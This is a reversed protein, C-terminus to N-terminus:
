TELCSQLALNQHYLDLELYLEKLTANIIDELLYYVKTSWPACLIEFQSILTKWKWLHFWVTLTHLHCGLRVHNDPVHKPQTPCTEHHHWKPQIWPCCWVQEALPWPVLWPESFNDKNAITELTVTMATKHEKFLCCCWSWLRSDAQLCWWHLM